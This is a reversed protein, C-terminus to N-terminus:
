SRCACPANPPTCPRSRTDPTPSDTIWRTAGWTRQARAAALTHMGSAPEADAHRPEGADLGGWRECRKRLLYASPAMVGQAARSSAAGGHQRARQQLRQAHRHHQHHGMEVFRGVRNLFKQIKAHRRARQRRHFGRGGVRRSTQLRRELAQTCGIRAALRADGHRRDGRQHLRHRRGGTALTQAHKHLRALPARRGRKRLPQARSAIATHLRDLIRSIERHASAHDVAKRRRAHGGDAHIVETVFQFRQVLDVHGRLGTIALDGRAFNWAGVACAKTRLIVIRQRARQQGLARHHHPGFQALDGLLRAAVPLAHHVRDAHHRGLVGHAAGRLSRRARQRHILERQGTGVFQRPRCRRQGGELLIGRLGEFQESFKGAFPGGGQGGGGLAITLAGRFQQAAM